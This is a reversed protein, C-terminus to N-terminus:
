LLLISFYLSYYWSSDRNGSIKLETTFWFLWEKGGWRYVMNILPYHLVYLSFSYSAILRSFKGFWKLDVKKFKDSTIHLLSYIVFGFALGVFLDVFFLDTTWGDTFLRGTMVLPRVVMAVFLLLLALIPIFKQRLFKSKPLFLVISGILWIVFYSNMRAGINFFILLAVLVCILKTIKGQKCFLLFLLPFLMYYWFEYNLSWLPANSGYVGVSINQLFFINGFFAILNDLGHEYSQYDFFKVAIRDFIFTLILAPILVIYLRSLRNILYTKWSWKNKYVAKLVSRSIFLGSLVFFIIVAPGGLINLLYLAQVFLNPSEVNGFGVFLRSSLHEMVVLVASIGRVFDLYISVNGKLLEDVKLFNTYLYGM